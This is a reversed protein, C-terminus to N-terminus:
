SHYYPKKIILNVVLPKTDTVTAANSCSVSANTNFTGNKDFKNSILHFSKSEGPSLDFQESTKTGNLGPTDWLIQCGIATINGNNTVDFDGITTEGIYISSKIQFKTITVIAQKITGTSNGQIVPKGNTVTNVPQHVFPSLPGTLWWLVFGTVIAAIIGGIWKGFSSSSESM